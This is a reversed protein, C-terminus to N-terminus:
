LNATPDEFYPKREVLIKKGKTPAGALKKNFLICRRENRQPLAWPNSKRAKV